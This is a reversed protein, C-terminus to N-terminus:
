EGLRIPSSRPHMPVIMGDAFLPQAICIIAICLLFIINQRGTM